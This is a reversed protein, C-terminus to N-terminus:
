VENTIEGIPTIEADKSFNLNNVDSQEAQCLRWPLRYIYTEQRPM